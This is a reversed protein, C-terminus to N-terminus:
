SLFLAISGAIPSLLRFRESTTNGGSIRPDNIIAKLGELEVAEPEIDAVVVTEAEASM